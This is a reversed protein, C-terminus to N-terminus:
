ITREEWSERERERERKRERERERERRRERKKRVNTAHLQERLRLAMSGRLQVDMDGAM